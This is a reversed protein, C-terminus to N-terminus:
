FIYLTGGYPSLKTKKTVAGKGQILINAKIPLINTIYTKIFSKFYIVLTNIAFRFLTSAYVESHVVM